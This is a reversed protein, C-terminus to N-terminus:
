RSCCTYEYAIQNDKPRTLHLRKIVQNSDCKVDHRDLYISNGGGSDNAPTTKNVCNGLNPVQRCDYQFQFQGQGNRNLHIRGIAQGDPCTIDHRDFYVANGGGEDNMPTTNAIAYGIDSATNCAYNLQIQNDSPRSLYIENLVSNSDCVADHRDLFASNGGGWDNAPTNKASLVFQIPGTQTTPVIKDTKGTPVTSATPVIKDTQGTSVTSATPVTSANPVTKDTQSTSTTQSTSATPVTKNTQTSSIYFGISVSISILILVVGISIIITYDM